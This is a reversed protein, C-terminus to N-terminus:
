CWQRCKRIQSEMVVQLLVLQLQLKIHVWLLSIYLRMELGRGAISFIINKEQSHHYFSSLYPKFTHPHISDLVTLFAFIGPLKSCMDYRALPPGSDYVGLRSCTIPQFICSVIGTQESFKPWKRIIDHERPFLYWARGMKGYQLHHFAPRPRPVLSPTLNSKDTISMTVLNVQASLATKKDWSWLSARFIYM